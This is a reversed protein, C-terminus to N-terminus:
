IVHLKYILMFSTYVTDLIYKDKIINCISQIKDNSLNRNFKWQEELTSSDFESLNDYLVISNNGILSLM